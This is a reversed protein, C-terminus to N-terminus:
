GDHCFGFADGTKTYCPGKGTGCPHTPDCITHCTSQAAGEGKDEFFICDSNAGCSAPDNVCAGGLPTAGAPKCFTLKSTQTVGVQEPARSCTYGAACQTGYPTCAPICAGTEPNGPTLIV